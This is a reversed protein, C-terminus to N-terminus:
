LLGIRNVIAMTDGSCGNQHTTGPTSSPSYWVRVKQKTTQALMLITLINMGRVTTADFQFHRSYHQCTSSTSPAPTMRFRVTEGGYVLDVHSWSSTIDAQSIFPVLLLLTGLIIKQLM